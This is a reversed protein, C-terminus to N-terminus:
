PLRHHPDCISDSHSQGATSAVACSNDRILAASPSRHPSGSYDMTLLNRGPCHVASENLKSEKGPM